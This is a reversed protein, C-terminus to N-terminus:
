IPVHISVCYRVKNKEYEFDYRIYTRPNFSFICIHRIRFKQDYRIYTRPNFCFLHAVLVPAWPRVKYLYTSQFMSGIPYRRYIFPRVKYLYTSQFRIGASIIRRSNLDYRIYTRPNFGTAILYLLITRSDYRIYTRPNFCEPCLRTCFFVCLRVKYLYTSQFSRKGTLSAFM